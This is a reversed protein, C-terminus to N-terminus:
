RSRTDDSFIINGTGGDLRMGDAGTAKAVKYCEDRWRFPVDDTNGSLIDACVQINSAIVDAAVEGNRHSLLVRDYLGDTRTKLAMLTQRYAAVGTSFRDFLFTHPNCADGLLLIREEPILMAMSGPTHGPCAYQVVSIGGLDLVEGDALPRFNAPDATPIYEALLEAAAGGKRFDEAGHVAFLPLDAPNMRVDEFQAAGMAHDVHGHTLLVTVPKDTLGRVCGRLDGFGSGTDILAAAHEGEVLYCLETLFCFIRTIRDTVKETRFTLM